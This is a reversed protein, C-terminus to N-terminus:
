AGKGHAEAFKDSKAADATEILAAARVADAACEVDGIGASAGAGELEPASAKRGGRGDIAAEEALGAPRRAEAGDAAGASKRDAAAVGRGLEGHGVKRLLGDRDGVAAGHADGGVGCAEGVGGGRQS